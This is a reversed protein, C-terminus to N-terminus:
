KLTLACCAFLPIMITRRPPRMILNKSWMYANIIQQVFPVEEGFDPMLLRDVGIKIIQYIVEQSSYGDLGHVSITPINLPNGAMILSDTSIIGDFGNERLLNTKYESFNSGVLEGYKGDESWAISYSPMVALATKTASDLNFAGDFFPITSTAFGDGPYVNYKGFDQHSERGAEAPGDGPFHKIQSIVSENGWGLDNGDADFSSQLGTVAAKSLDRALAPDEGFTGDARSWRPETAMDSQPGLMEFVGISRMLKAATNYVEQVVEEDFTAALALPTTKRLYASPPDMSPIVPVGLEATEAMVQMENIAKVVLVTDSRQLANGLFHRVFRDM